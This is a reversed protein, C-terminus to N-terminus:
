TGHEAEEERPCELCIEAPSQPRRRQYVKKSHGCELVVLWYVRGRELWSSRSYHVPKRKEYGRNRDRM